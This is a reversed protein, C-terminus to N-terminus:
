AYKTIIKDFLKINNELWFHNGIIDSILKEAKKNKELVCSVIIYPDLYYYYKPMLRLANVDKLSLKNKRLYGKMFAEIIKPNLKSCILGSSGIKAFHCVSRFLEWIHHYECANEWDLVGSIGNNDILINAPAFDGHIVGRSSGFIALLDRGADYNHLLEL